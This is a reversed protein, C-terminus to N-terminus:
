KAKWLEHGRALQEAFIEKLQEPTPVNGHRLDAFYWDWSMGMAYTFAFSSAAGVAMGVLPIFKLVERLV